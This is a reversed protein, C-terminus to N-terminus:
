ISANFAATVVRNSEDTPLVHRLSAAAIQGGDGALKDLSISRTDQVGSIVVDNSTPATM